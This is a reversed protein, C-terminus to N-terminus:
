GAARRWGPQRHALRWGLVAAVLLNEAGIVLVASYHTYLALSSCAVLGLWPWLRWREHRVILWTFYLSLGGFLAVPAYMRAEQSYAVYFPTIAGVDAAALGAGRSALSAGLKYLLVVLLTGVIVSPFRVAYEGRGALLMWEHLILYYLPPHIDVAIALPDNAAQQTQPDSIVGFGGRAKWMATMQSATQSAFDVSFGEDVWISQRELGAVRLGFALLLVGLLAALLRSSVIRSHV